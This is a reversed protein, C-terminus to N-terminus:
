KLEFPGKSICTLFTAFSQSVPIGLIPPNLLMVVSNFPPLDFYCSSFFAKSAAISSMKECGSIAPFIPLRLLVLTFVNYYRRTLIKDPNFHLLFLKTLWSYKIPLFDTPRYNPLRKQTM